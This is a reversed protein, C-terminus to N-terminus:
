LALDSSKFALQDERPEWLVKVGRAHAAEYFLAGGKFDLAFCRRLVLQELKLLRDILTVAGCVTILGADDLMIRALNPCKALACLGSDTLTNIPPLQSQTRPRPSGTSSALSAQSASPVHDALALVKLSRACSSRSIADAVDDASQDRGDVHLSLALLRAGSNLATALSDPLHDCAYTHMVNLCCLGGGPGFQSIWALAADDVGNGLRLTKLNPAGMAAGAIWAALSDDKSADDEDANDDSDSLTCSTLNELSNHTPARQNSPHHRAAERYRRWPCAHHLELIELHPCLSCIDSVLDATVGACRYLCLSRLRYFSVSPGLTRAPSPATAADFTSRAIELCDLAPMRALARWLAAVAAPPLAPRRADTGGAMDYSLQPSPRRWGPTDDEDSFSRCRSSHPSRSSSRKGCYLEGDVTLWTTAPGFLRAVTALDEALPALLRGFFAPNAAVSRRWVRCVAMLTAGDRHSKRMARAWQRGAGPSSSSDSDLGLWSHVESVISEVLLTRALAPGAPKEVFRFSSLRATLENEGRPTEVWRADAYPLSVGSSVLSEMDVATMDEDSDDQPSWTDDDVVTNGILADSTMGSM